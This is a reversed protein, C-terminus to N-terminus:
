RTRPEIYRRRLRSTYTSTEYCTAACSTVYNGMNITRVSGKLLLVRWQNKNFDESNATLTSMNRGEAGEVQGHLCRFDSNM